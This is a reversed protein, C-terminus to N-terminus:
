GQALASQPQALKPEAAETLTAIVLLCDILYFSLPAYRM